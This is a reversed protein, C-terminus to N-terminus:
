NFFSVKNEKVFCFVYNMFMKELISPPSDCLCPGEKIRNLLLFFYIHCALCKYCKYFVLKCLVLNKYGYLYFNYTTYYLSTILVIELCM